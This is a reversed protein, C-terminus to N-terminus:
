GGRLRCQRIRERCHTQCLQDRPWARRKRQRRGRQKSCTRWKGFQQKASADIRPQQSAKEPDGSQLYATQQNWANPM